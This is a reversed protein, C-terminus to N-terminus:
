SRRRTFEESFYRTMTVGEEYEGIRAPIVKGELLQLIWEPYHGGAEQALPFGGGFRPNIESFVPGEPTLFAQLTVAGRGGMRAVAQLLELIWDGLDEDTITVGQISEGALTRIRLRPVYHVPNGDFDILADITIERDGIYEQIIPSQVEPLRTELDDRDVRFANLSASGARPRIFLAKPLSGLEVAGPLWSSPTRFGLESFATVTFWKDGSIDVLKESSILPTCGMDQFLPANKALFPLETDITPVLLRIKWRKVISLLADLYTPDEIPPLVFARDACQLAPALPDRDGAFTNGNRAATQQQFARLLSVRRGASTSLVNM